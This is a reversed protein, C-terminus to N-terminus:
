KKKYKEIIMRKATSLKKTKKFEKYIFIRANISLKSYLDHTSPYQTRILADFNYMSLMAKQIDASRTKKSQERKETAVLEQKAKKIYDASSVEDSLDKLYDDTTYSEKAQSILTNSLLVFILATKLLATRKNFGCGHTGFIM